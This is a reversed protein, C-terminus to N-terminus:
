EGRMERLADRVPGVRMVPAPKVKYDVEIPIAVEGVLQAEEPVPATHPLLVVKFRVESPMRAM